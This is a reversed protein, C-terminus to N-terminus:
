SFIWEVKPTAASRLMTALVSGSRPFLLGGRGEWYDTILYM